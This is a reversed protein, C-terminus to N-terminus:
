SHLSVGLGCVAFPRFPGPPSSSASSNTSMRISTSFLPSTRHPLPPRTCGKDITQKPRYARSSQPSQQPKQRRRQGRARYATPRNFVRFLRMSTAIGVNDSCSPPSPEFIFRSSFSMITTLIAHLIFHQSSCCAVPLHFPLSFFCISEIIQVLRDKPPHVHPQLRFDYM